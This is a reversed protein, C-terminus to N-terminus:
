DSKNGRETMRGRSGKVHLQPSSGSGKVNQKYCSFEGKCREGSDLLVEEEGVGNVIAPVVRLYAM